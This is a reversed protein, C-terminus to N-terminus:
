EGEITLTLNNVTGSIAASTPRIPLGEIFYNVYEKASETGKTDVAVIAFGFWAGGACDLDKDIAYSYYKTERDSAVEAFLSEAENQRCYIRYKVASSITSWHLVPRYDPAISIAEMASAESTEVIDVVVLSNAKVPMDASKSVTAIKTILRLTGNIFIHSYAAADGTWSLSITAADKVSISIDDITM